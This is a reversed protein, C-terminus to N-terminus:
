SLSGDGTKNERTKCITSAIVELLKDITDDAGAIHYSNDCIFKKNCYIEGRDTIFEYTKGDCVIEVEINGFIKKYYKFYLLTADYSAVLKEIRSKITKEKM